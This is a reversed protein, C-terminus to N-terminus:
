VRIVFRDIHSRHICLKEPIVETPQWHNYSRGILSTAPLIGYLEVSYDDFTYSLLLLDEPKPDTILPDKREAMWSDYPSVTGEKKTTKVHLRKGSFPVGTAGTIDSDFQPVARIEFDPTGGTISVWALEALKGKAAQAYRHDGIFRGDQRNAREKDVYEIAFIYCRTIEETTPTWKV